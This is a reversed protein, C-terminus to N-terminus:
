EVPCLIAEEHVKMKHYRLRAVKAEASNPNDILLEVERFKIELQEELFAITRKLRKKSPM